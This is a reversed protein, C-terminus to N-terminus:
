PSGPESKFLYIDLQVVTPPGGVQLFNRYVTKQFVFNGKGLDSLVTSVRRDLSYALAEGQSDGGFLLVLGARRSALDPVRLVQSRVSAMARPSRSLLGQPDVQLYVHVPHLKLAPPPTHLV